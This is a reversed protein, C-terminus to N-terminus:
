AVEPGFVATALLVGDASWLRGTHTGAENPGQYFRIAAIEGEVLPKFAVGMEYDTGDAAAPLDPIASGMTTTGVPEASFAGNPDFGTVRLDATAQNPAVIYSFLLRGDADQGEYLARGGNNLLLLPSGNTTDLAVPRSLTVSFGVTRGPGLPGPAAPNMQVATIAPPSTDVALGTDAAVLSPVAAVDLTELPLSENGGADALVTM